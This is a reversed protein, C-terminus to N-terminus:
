GRLALSAILSRPEVVNVGNQEAFSTQSELWWLRGNAVRLSTLAGFSAEFVVHPTAAKGLALALLKQPRERSYPTVWYATGAAVVFDTLVDLWELVDDSEPVVVGHGDIRVIKGAYDGAAAYLTDGDLALNKLAADVELTDPADHGEMLWLLRTRDEDDIPESWVVRKASGTDFWRLSPAPKRRLRCSVGADSVYEVVLEQAFLDSGFAPADGSDETTVREPRQEHVLWVGSSLVRARSAPTSVLPTVVGSLLDLLGTGSTSAVVGRRGRADLIRYSGPSGHGCFPDPPPPPVLEAGDERTIARDTTVLVMPESPFADDLRTSHTRQEVGPVERLDAKRAGARALLELPTLVQELELRGDTALRALVVHQPSICGFRDGVGHADRAISPLDVAHVQRLSPLELVYAKPADTCVIAYGSLVVPTVMGWRETEEQDPEGPWAGLVSGDPGVTRVESWRGDFRAAVLLGHEIPAAWLRDGETTSVRFGYEFVGKDVSFSAVHGSEASAIGLRTGAAIVRIGRPRSAAFRSPRDALLDENNNSPQFADIDLSPLELDISREIHGDRVDVISLMMTESGRILAARTGFAAAAELAGELTGPKTARPLCVEEDDIGAYATFPTHPTHWRVEPGDLEGHGAPLWLHIREGDADFVIRM